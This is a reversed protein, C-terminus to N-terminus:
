SIPSSNIVSRNENVLNVRQVLRSYLVIDLGEDGTGRLKGVAHGLELGHFTGFVLFALRHAVSHDVGGARDQAGSM